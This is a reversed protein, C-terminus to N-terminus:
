EGAVPIENVGPCARRQKLLSANIAVSGMHKYMGDTNIATCVVPVNQCVSCEVKRGNPQLLVPNKAGNWDLRYGHKKCLLGMSLVAPAKSLVLFEFYSKLDKVYINVTYKGYVIGNATSLPHPRDLRKRTSWEKPTLDKKSMFNISAGSDVIIDRTHKGSNTGVLSPVPPSCDRPNQPHRPTERLRARAKGREPQSTRDAALDKKVLARLYRALRRAERESILIAEKTPFGGRRPSNPSKFFRGKSPKANHRQVIDETVSRHWRIMKIKRNITRAPLAILNTLPSLIGPHYNEVPM